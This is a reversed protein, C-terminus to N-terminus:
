INKKNYISKKYKFIFNLNRLIFYYKNSNLPVINKLKLLKLELCNLYNLYLFNFNQLYYSGIYKEYENSLKFTSKSKSVVIFFYFIDKIKLITEQHLFLNFDNLKARIKAINANVSFIYYNINKLNLALLKLIFNIGLGCVILYEIQITQNKIIWKLGDVNIFNLKTLQNQNLFKKANNNANIIAKKSTDLGYIKQFSYNKTLYIALYGHDTGLDVIIKKNSNTKNIFNTIKLLRNSLKM